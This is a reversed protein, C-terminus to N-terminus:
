WGAMISKAVNKSAGAIVKNILLTGIGIGGASVVGAVIGAVTAGAVIYDIVKYCSAIAMGTASAIFGVYTIKEIM